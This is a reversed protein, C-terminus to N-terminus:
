NIIKLIKYSGEPTYIIIKDSDIYGLGNRSSSVRKVMDATTSVTKVSTGMGTNVLREWERAYREPSMDLVDRVFRKHVINSHDLQFLLIQDGNDWRRIKMLYLAKAEDRSITDKSVDLSTISDTDASAIIYTFLMLFLAVLRKM